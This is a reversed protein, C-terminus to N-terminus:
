TKDLKLRNAIAKRIWEAFGENSKEAAREVAVKKSPPLRLGYFEMKEKRKPM